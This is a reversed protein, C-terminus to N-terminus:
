LLWRAISVLGIVWVAGILLMCGVTATFGLDFRRARPAEAVPPPEELLEQGRAAIGAAEDDSIGALTTLATPLEHEGIAAGRTAAGREDFLVLHVSGDAGDRSILVTGGSTRLLAFSAM